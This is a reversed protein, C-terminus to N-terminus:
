PIVVALEAPRSAARDGIQRIQVLASGSGIRELDVAAVTAAAAETLLEIAGTPGAITIRYQERSEGLPADIDDVWAWGRRSRRVWSLALAGGADLEAQVRIPAPPRQSEGSAVIEAQAPSAATSIASATIRSGLAWDPLPISRVADREIMLFPEGVAHSASAWETGGRGRLLRTLRFRGPGIQLAEGFQLLEHGLVALNAGGVLADDDCNLLWQDPDVLEVDVSATTDILHSEGDGLASLAHGFVAKRAATRLVFSQSGATVEVASSKWGRTPSSAALLLTPQSSEGFVEPVDFLALTVDAVSPPVNPAVRGGDGALSPAASWAPALEAVVVYSELTSRLVTWETPSVPLELRSGPRLPFYSASLRVTLKDRRAWRRAIIQQCLSKAAGAELVAPLNFREENGDQEGASARAEGAQFDRARDYYSLRLAAPLEVAPVQERRLKPAQKGDADNGLDADNVIRVNGSPSVLSSGNDFLELALCDVLPEIASTMSRGYAAYGDVPQGEECDIIGRTADGLIAAVSPSPEDAVLEFTLFPIRNGFEALELNEFVALSLGRYAPTSDVGEISGILPDIAQDESGDYFRFGTNVKFEGTEDRLLKGDAWIRTIASAPRSSLAVAFSVTYSYVTDPQGKAGSTASSEVLDTAWVVSGAVRMTGYVRPIQTGYSSTQVSLDGLRPGRSSGGLLEQDISQGILAGIAAGVPGGLVTGVTSLVLTAM